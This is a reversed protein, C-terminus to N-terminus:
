AGFERETGILDAAVNEGAEDEAGAIRDADREQGREKREHDSPGKADEGGDHAAPEILNQAADNIRQHRNGHEDERKHQEGNGDIKDDVPKQVLRASKAILVSFFVRVLPSTSRSMLPRLISPKLSSDHCSITLPTSRVRFRPSTRPRMPSDPAPLDVMPRAAMPKALGPQRILEPEITKSPISRMAAPSSSFRSSLPERM